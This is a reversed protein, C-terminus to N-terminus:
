KRELVERRKNKYLILSGAMMLLMGGITYWYIGSGGASPLDYLAENEFSYTLIESGDQGTVEQEGIKVSRPSGNEIEITWVVSSKLYGLPAKIEEFTYTGDPIFGELRTECTEDTYWKVIGTKAESKGYYVSPQETQETQETLSFVAGELKLQEGGDSASVKVIQWPKSKTNTITFGDEANGSVSSQFGDARGNEDVDTDGIKSEKVFYDYIFYNESADQGYYDLNEFTGTWNGDAGKRIVLTKDEVAIENGSADRYYLQVTISEPLTEDEEVMWQKNVTISVEKDTDPTNTIGSQITRDYQLNWFQAWNSKKEFELQWGNESQTLHVGSSYTSDEGHAYILNGLELNGAGELSMGKITEAILDVEDDTLGLDIPTWLIYGSNSTLKVLLMNNKGLDYLIESCSTTRDLYKFEFSSSQSTTSTFGEVPTEEVVFNTDEPLNTWTHTWNEGTLYVPNTITSSGYKTDGEDKVGNNNEDVYLTVQIREPKIEETTGDAWTKTVTLETTGSDVNVKDNTVTVNADGAIKGSASTVENDEDNTPLKVEYAAGGVTYVPLYSGDLEEQIEFSTGYPLGSISATEGAKLTIMGDLDANSLAGNKTYSGGSYPEGQFIVQIKFEKNLDGGENSFLKKITLTATKDVSNKFNVSKVDGATLEGTTASYITQESGDGKVEIEEGNYEVKYGDLYAGTETVQYTDTAQFGDFVAVQGHKLTFNGGNVTTGTGIEKSGQFLTYDLETNEVGNKKINFQFDIDQAYNVSSGAEDVVEKAVSVSDEPITPLNFKIMCNSESNGRELYFFKITHNTYNAFTNGSFEQTDAKQAARFKELINGDPQYQTQGKDKTWVQGTSFDIKGSVAAHIGGLDLVLVDDIFVWVDDDGSFEFVMPSTEGSEQQIRGGAPQLFGASITMGFYHNVNRSGLVASDEGTKDNPAKMTDKDYVPETFPYFGIDKKDYAVFNADDNLNSLYAYYANSDYVYYGNDDKQFLYDLNSYVSKVNGQETTDFLYNLSEGRGNGTRDPNLVPYGGSLNPLVMDKNLYGSSGHQWININQNGSGKSSVFKLVHDKNIGQSLGPDSSKSLNVSEEGEPYVQYDFLNITIGENITSVTEVKGPWNQTGEEPDPGFIFYIEGNDIDSWGEGTGIDENKCYRFGTESNYYLGHVETANFSFEKGAKVYVAKNFDATVNCEEIIRNAITEVSIRDKDEEYHFAHKGDQGISNGSSDVVKVELEPDQWAKGWGITFISFSEATLEVKEVAAADTTQVSAKEAMDEVVVGDVAAAEEKLHKVSVEADESVGEPLAAQKFEMTVNVDGSPEVEVGDVLFSIDYALFGEMTEENKESDETLKKETLDYQDNIKEAEAKEEATMDNTIETKEIPTVSLQAGEPVIGPEASVSIIISDDEYKDKYASPQASEKSVDDSTKTVPEKTENDTNTVTQKASETSEEQKTETKEAPAKTETDTNTVTQKEPGTSEEQKTETKEAPAETETETNTVTQEEPAPTDSGDGESLLSPVDTTEESADPTEAPEAGDTEELGAAEVTSGILSSHDFAVGALLLIVLCVSIWRKLMKM